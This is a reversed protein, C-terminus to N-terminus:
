QHELAGDIQLPMANRGHSVSQGISPMDRM